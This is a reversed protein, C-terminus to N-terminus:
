FYFVFNSSYQMFLFRRKRQKKYYVLFYSRFTMFLVVRVEINICFNGLFQRREPDMVEINHSETDHADEAKTAEM